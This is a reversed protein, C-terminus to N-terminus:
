EATINKNSDFPDSVVIGGGGTITFDDIHVSTRTVTHDLSGIEFLVSVDQTFYNTKNLFVTDAGARMWSTYDAGTRKVYFEGDRNVTSKFTHVSSTTDTMYLSTNSLNGSIIAPTVGVTALSIGLTESFINTGSTHFSSYKVRIEFDGKIGNISALSTGM